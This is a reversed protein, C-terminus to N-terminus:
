SFNNTSSVKLPRGETPPSNRPYESRQFCVCCFQVFMDFHHTQFGKCKLGGQFPRRLGFLFSRGVFILGRRNVPLSSGTATHNTPTRCTPDPANENCQRCQSRIQRTAAALGAGFFHNRANALMGIVGQNAAHLGKLIQLQLVKSILMKRGKFPVNETVYLDNRM